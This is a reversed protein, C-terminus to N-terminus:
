QDNKGSQQEAKARQVNMRLLNALIKEDIETRKEIAAEKAAIVHTPDAKARKGKVDERRVIVIEGAGFPEYVEAWAPDWEGDPDVEAYARIVAEDLKKHALKLWSPRDNYLNTLTRKKLKKDKAAEAMIASQRLLERAEEPVDSFDEFADVKKEIPELWEPPNLWRERLDNLEKAAESIAIYHASDKQEEGPPWPLPFTEFCTSPTYRFGSEVERLQTGLARSWREHVSSHLVGFFCDDERSFVFGAHDPLTPHMVWSFLRYKAVNATFLFRELPAITRRMAPRPEVHIWWKKAYSARRNTRRQPYVVRRVWDFPKEYKAAEEERM